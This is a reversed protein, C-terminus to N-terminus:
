LKGDTHDKSDSSILLKGEEFRAVIITQTKEPDKGEVELKNADLADRLLKALSVFDNDGSDSISRNKVLNELSSQLKESLSGIVGHNGLTEVSGSPEVRYLEGTDLSGVILACGFPRVGAKMTYEQFLLSLEELFSEVPMCEDFTFEYEVAIRQAAAVAIRADASIGSHTIVISDSIKCFRATGDDMM